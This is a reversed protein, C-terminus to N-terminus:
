GPLTVAIAAYGAAAPAGDHPAGDAAAATAAAQDDDAAPRPPADKGYPTGDPRCFVLNGDHRANGATLREAAPTEPAGRLATLTRQPLALSRRSKPTKTDGGRRSSRWVHIVGNGLDLHDWTAAPSRGFLRDSQLKPM